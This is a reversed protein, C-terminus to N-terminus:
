SNETQLLEPLLFNQNQQAIGYISFPFVLFFSRVANPISVRRFTAM